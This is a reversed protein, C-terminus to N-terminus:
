VERVCFPSSEYQQQINSIHVANIGAGLALRILDMKDDVFLCQEPRLGRSRAVASIMDIKRAAKNVTLYNTIGYHRLAMNKKIADRLSFIEHTLIFLEMGHSRCESVLWQMAPIPKDDKHLEAQQTLELYCQTEYSADLQITCENSHSFLTRDFDFFALRIDEYM